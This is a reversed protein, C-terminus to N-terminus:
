AGRGESGSTCLSERFHMPARCAMNQGSQRVCSSSLEWWAAGAIRGEMHHVKSHMQGSTVPSFMSELGTQEMDELMCTIVNGGLVMNPTFLLVISIVHVWHVCLM